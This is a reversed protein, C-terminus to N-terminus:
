NKNQKLRVVILLGTEITSLTTLQNSDYMNVVKPTKRKSFCLYKYPCGTVIPM